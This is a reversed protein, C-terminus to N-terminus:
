IKRDMMLAITITAILMKMKLIGTWPLRNKNPNSLTKNMIVDNAKPINIEVIAAVWCVAMIIEKIPNISGTINNDPNIKGIELIGAGRWIMLLIMGALHNITMRLAIMSLPTPSCIIHFSVSIKSPIVINKIPNLTLFYLILNSYLLHFFISLLAYVFSYLSFIQM